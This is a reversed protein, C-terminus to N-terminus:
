GALKALWLLLLLLCWLLVARWVLGIAGQMSDVDATEGAGLESQSSVQKLSNLRIGLAGAGSAVVIGLENDYWNAAHNRWCLVADEFNGVIAFAAATARLPLWELLRFAKDAFLGFDGCDRWSESLLHSLRYLVAGLPGPLLVFWFLVAFVHRHSATLATEIALQAIAEAKTDAPLEENRWEGLLARAREVDDLRLAMQIDTYFHSFQRFGLTLYLILANFAFALVIHDLFAIYILVLPALPLLAAISAAAVGQQYSGANLHRELWEAWSAVPRVVWRAYPLPFRQELLLAFILSFLSM